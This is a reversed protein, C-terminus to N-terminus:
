LEGGHQRIPVVTSGGGMTPLDFAAMMIADGEDPSRGLRRRTLKKEEVAIIGRDTSFRYSCLASETDSDYKDLRLKHLRFKERLEWLAQSRLNAFKLEAKPRIIAGASGLFRACRWQVALMSQYLGAGIGNVDIRVDETKIGTSKAQVIKVLQQEASEDGDYLKIKYVPKVVNGDITALACGDIATLSGGAVDVGLYKHGPAAPVNYADRLWEPLILQDPANKYDWIGDLLRQRTAEDSIRELTDIYEQGLFPNDYVLAQIFKSDDPLRNHRAKDFFERYLWGKDPNCTILMKPHIGLEENRGRGIRTKFVDYAKPALEQAEECWAGTLDLSGLYNYDPDRPRYNLAIFQIVSGTPKFTLTSFRPDWRWKKREIQLFDIMKWLSGLATSIAKSLEERAVCYKIGRHMIVMPVIWAAALMSKGGGGGGGYCLFKTKHDHLLALAMNQKQSLALTRM